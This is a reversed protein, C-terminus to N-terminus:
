AAAADEADERIFKAQRAVVESFHLLAQASAPVKDGPRVPFYSGDGFHAKEVGDEEQIREFHVVYEEPSACYRLVVRYKLYGDRKLFPSAAITNYRSMVDGGMTTSGNKTYFPIGTLSVLHALIM